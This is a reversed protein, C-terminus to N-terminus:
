KRDSQVLATIPKVIFIDSKAESQLDVIRQLTTKQKALQVLFM